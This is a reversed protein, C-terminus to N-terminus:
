KETQEEEEPEDWFRQPITHDIPDGLIVPFEGETQGYRTPNRDEEYQNQPNPHYILNTFSAKIVVV